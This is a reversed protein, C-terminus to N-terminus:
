GLEGGPVPSVLRHRLAFALLMRAQARCAPATLDYHEGLRSIGDALTFPRGALAEAAVEFLEGGPRNLTLLLDREGVLLLADDDFWELYLAPSLRYRKM